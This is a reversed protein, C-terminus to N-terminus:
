SANSYSINMYDVAVVGTGSKEINWGATSTGTLTIINTGSDRTFTTVIQKTGDTFKITKAALSADINFNNFTNSGTVTLAYAGAGQVVVNNYALGGGAFTQANTGSNTLIITSTGANFTFGTTNINFKVSANTDTITIIGNRLYLARATTASEDIIATTLNYGNLDFTGNTHIIRAISLPQTILDSQQTVTGDVNALIVSYLIVSNTDLNYNGRGRMYLGRNGHVYTTGSSITLSGYVNPEISVTVTPTGTFTVSKGVRPMDMTLNHSCSWSDQPLPVRDTGVGDQWTALTSSNGNAASIQDAAATFTIDTNGQCDGSGGTIASLDVPNTVTIDMIDVNASGTWNTATITAPTGLTSSQVLLRNTISNGIMAFTTCTLNSGSTMTITDTKTATGTRTFTAIGTPSGSVTHATGTLNFSAGNWNADGLACSGTGSINITATNASVILNSGAYNIGDAGNMNITSTGLTLTKNANGLIRLSFLNGTQNNTNITGSNQVIGNANTIVFADNLTLTGTYTVDTRLSCTLIVTNSTLSTAGAGAAVLNSVGSTNMAAILTIDGYFYIQSTFVLTPTNTSGTWDMSLAYSTENVTLTQNTATFSNANCYVNDSASPKVAGCQGGSAASWTNADGYNGGSGLTLNLTATGTGTATITNLGATLTVPTGTITSTGSAITGSTGSAMYISFTGHTGDDTLNLTTNGATAIRGAEACTIHDGNVIFVQGVVCYRDAM